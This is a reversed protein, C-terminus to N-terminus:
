DSISLIYLSSLSMGLINKVISFSFSIFYLKVEKPNSILRKESLFVFPSLGTGSPINM